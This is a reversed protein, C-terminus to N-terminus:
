KLLGFKISCKIKGCIRDFSGCQWVSQKKRDSMDSGCIGQFSGCIQDAKKSGTLLITQVVIM